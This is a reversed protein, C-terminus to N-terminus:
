QKNIKRLLRQQNAKVKEVFITNEARTQGWCHKLRNQYKKISSKLIKIESDKVEGACPSISKSEKQLRNEICESCQASDGIETYKKCTSCRWRKSKNCYAENLVMTVSHQTPIKKLLKYEGRSVTELYGAARLYNRYNDMTLLSNKDRLKFRSILQQRTIIGKCKNIYKKFEQWSFIIDFGFKTGM